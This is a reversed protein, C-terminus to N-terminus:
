SLLYVCCVVANTDNTLDHDCSDNQHPQVVYMDTRSKSVSGNMVECLPLDVSQIVASESASVAMAIVLLWCLMGMVM